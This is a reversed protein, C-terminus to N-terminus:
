HWLALPVVCVFVDRCHLAQVPTNRITQRSNQQLNCLMRGLARVSASLSMTCVDVLTYVPIHSVGAPGLEAEPLGVRVSCCCCCGHNYTTWQDQLVTPWGLHQYTFQHQHHQCSHAQHRNPPSVTSCTLVRSAYHPTDPANPAHPLWEQMVHCTDRRKVFCCACAAVCARQGWAVELGSCASRSPLGKPAEKTLVACRAELSVNGM